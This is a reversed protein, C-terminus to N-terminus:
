IAEITRRRWDVLAPKLDETTRGLRVVLADKAPCVLISQGEYGQARFTGFADQEVWWHAGYGSGDEPDVSRLTRAHDVWGEPLVRTGDWCGDRLHLLGYRAYDRATAHVYSSGVFTGADDFRPEPSTAGIPGFLRDLLGRVGDEGGAVDGVIRAVVNTTGSSYVFETDPPAAAPRSAAFAAVDASGSGFLMDIVDSAGADGYDERWALGSRMALLHELTIAAREDGAWESVPAPASPDLLGDGVLLGVLSHTISKAMSWSLLKTTPEVPTPPHTFSPLAGGYRELLLRGGVVVVVAYTDGYRAPDGFLEDVLAVVDAPAPGTPWGDPDPAPWPVGVPQGPLPHLREIV